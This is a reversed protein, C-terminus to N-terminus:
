AEEEAEEASETSDPVEHVEEDTTDGVSGECGNPNCMHVSNNDDTDYEEAEEASDTSDPVEHVEVAGELACQDPISSVTWWICGLSVWVFSPPRTIWLGPM